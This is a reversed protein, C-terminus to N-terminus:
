RSSLSAKNVPTHRRNWNKLAEGRTEAGGSECGCKTCKHWFWNDENHREITFAGCIPCARLSSNTHRVETQKWQNWIRAYNEMSPELPLGAGCYNCYAGYLGDAEVWEYDSHGCFPCEELIPAEFITIDAEDVGFKAVLDIDKLIRDDNDNCNSNLDVEDPRPFLLEALDEPFDGAIIADINQIKGMGNKELSPIAKLIEYAKSSKLKLPHFMGGNDVFSGLLPSVVAAKNLCSLLTLLKKHDTKFEQLASSLPLHRIRDEYNTAYTALFAFPYEPDDNDVLHFFVREPVKLDQRKSSLYQPISVNETEKKFILILQKFINQIWTETIFESGIVFPISNLLSECSIKATSVDIHRLELEPMSILFEVFRDALLKLFLFSASDATVTEFGM